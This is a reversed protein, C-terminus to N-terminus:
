CIIAREKFPEQEDLHSYNSGCLISKLSTYITNPQLLSGFSFTKDLRDRKLGEILFVIVNTREFQGVSASNMSARGVNKAPTLSFVGLVLLMGVVLGVAGKWKTIMRLPTKNVM